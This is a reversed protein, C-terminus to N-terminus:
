ESVWGDVWMGVQGGMWGPIKWGSVLVDIWGGEYGDM